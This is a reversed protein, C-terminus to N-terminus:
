SEAGAGSELPGPGHRRQERQVQVWGRGVITAWQHMAPADDHNTTPFTSQADFCDATQGNSIIVWQPIGYSGLFTNTIKSTNSKPQITIDSVFDATIIDLLQSM